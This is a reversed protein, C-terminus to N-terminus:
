YSMYKWGSWLGNIKERYKGDRIEEVLIGNSDYFYKGNRWKDETEGPKKDFDKYNIISKTHFEGKFTSFFIQKVRKDGEYINDTTNISNYPQENNSVRRMKGDPRYIFSKVRTSGSKGFNTTIQLESDSVVNYTMTLSSVENKTERAKGRKYVTTNVEIADENYKFIKATSVYNKFMGQTNRVSETIKGDIYTIDFNSPIDNNSAQHGELYIPNNDMDYRITFDFNQFSDIRVGALQNNKWFLDIRYTDVLAHALFNGDWVFTIYKYAQDNTPVIFKQGTVKGSAADTIIEAEIPYYGLYSGEGAFVNKLTRLISISMKNDEELSGTSEYATEFEKVIPLAEIVTETEVVTDDFTSDATNVEFHRSTVNNVIFKEKLNEAMEALQKGDSKDYGNEILKNAYKSTEDPMDLYYYMKALNYYSAYRMKKHKNKKPDTYKPIVSKFYVMVPELKEKLGSISQNYKSTAFIEQAQKLAKKHATYEPHKKSDLIWLNTGVQEQAHYGFQNNLEYNVSSPINRAFKKIFQSKLSEINTSVYNEGEKKTKYKSAKFNGKDSITYEDRKGNQDKVYYSATTRYHIIPQYYKQSSIVKGEKNKKIDETEYYKVGEIIIDNVQIQVDITGNRNIKEFGEIIISENIVKSPYASEATPVSNTNVSYTRLNKDKVPNTPLKVYSVKITERDLDTSQAKVAKSFVLLLVLIVIKKM